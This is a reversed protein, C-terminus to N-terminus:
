PAKIARRGAELILLPYRNVVRGTAAHTLAVEVDVADGLDVRGVYALDGSAVDGGWRRTRGDIVVEITIGDLGIREDNVVHVNGTRPDIMPLVPRCADRVAAYARKPVRAHDLLGYGIAPSPDALTYVAFGGNPTGRVRRLDEIQLQLLAAQYAQTADRWEEFTKAEGPPVHADFAERQM